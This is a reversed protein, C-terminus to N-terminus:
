TSNRETKTIVPTTATKRIAAIRMVWRSSSFRLSACATVLRAALTLWSASSCACSGSNWQGTMSPVAASAIAPM